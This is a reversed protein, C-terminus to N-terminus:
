ANEFRESRPLGRLKFTFDRIKLPVQGKNDLVAVLETVVCEGQMGVFNASVEFVIRPFLEDQKRWRIFAWWTGTLAAVATAVQGIREFM